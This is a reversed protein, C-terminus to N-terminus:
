RADKAVVVAFAALSGEWGGPADLSTRVGQAAPGYADLGRHEFLVQTKKPGLSKFNVEVETHFSPDYQWGGSIKWSLVVRRPPDWTMVAGIDCESGDVCTSYWRGGIRPEVILEKLPSKGIHHERLWWSNMGTTFVAFAREASADVVIEKKVSPVSM